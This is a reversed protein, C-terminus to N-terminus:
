ENITVCWRSQSWLRKSHGTSARCPLLSGTCKYDTCLVMDAQSPEGGNEQPCTESNQLLSLIKLEVGLLEKENESVLVGTGYATVVSSLGTAWTQGPWWVGPFGESPFSCLFARGNAADAM